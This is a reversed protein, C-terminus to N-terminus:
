PSLIGARQLLARIEVENEGVNDNIPLGIPFSVYVCHAGGAHTHGVGIDFQVPNVFTSDGVTRVFTGAPYFYLSQTAENQLPAFCEMVDRLGRTLLHFGTLSTV